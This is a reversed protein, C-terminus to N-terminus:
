MGLQCGRLAVRDAAAAVLECVLALAMPPAFGVKLIVSGAPAGKPVVGEADSSTTQASHLFDNGRVSATLRPLEHTHAAHLGMKTCRIFSPATEPSPADEEPFRGASGSSNIFSILSRPYLTSM